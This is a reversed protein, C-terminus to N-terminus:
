IEGNKRRKKAFVVGVAVAAILVGAAAPIGVSLGIILGFNIAKKEPAPTYPNSIAFWGLRDTVVSLTGDANVTYDMATVSYSRDSNIDFRVVKGGEKLEAANLTVKVTGRLTEPEFKQSNSIYRQLETKYLMGITYYGGLTEVQENLGNNFNKGWNSSAEYPTIIFRLEGISEDVVPLTPAGSQVIEIRGQGNEEGSAGSSIIENVGITYRANNKGSTVRTLHADTGTKLNGNSDIRDKHVIEYPFIGVYDPVNVTNKLEDSWKNDYEDYTKASYVVRFDAAFSKYNVDIIESPVVPNEPIAAGKVYTIDKAAFSVSNIFIERPASVAATFNDSGVYKVQVFYSGAGKRIPAANLPNEFYGDANLVGDASYVYILDGIITVSHANQYGELVARVAANLDQVSSRFNAGYNATYKENSSLILEVAIKDITITQELIYENGGRSCKLTAVYAGANVPDASYTIVPNTLAGGTLATEDLKVSWQKGNFTVTYGNEFAEAGDTYYLKGDFRVDNFDIIKFTVSVNNNIEGDFIFNSTIGGGIGSRFRRPTATFDSTANYDINYYANASAAEAFTCINVKASLDIDAFDILADDTDYYKLAFEPYALEFRHGNLVIVGGSIFSNIIWKEATEPLAAVNTVSEDTAYKTYTAIGANIQYLQYINGNTDKYLYSNNKDKAYGGLLEIKSVSKQSIRASIQMTTILNGDKDKLVYNGAKAGELAVTLTIDYKGVNVGDFAGTIKLTVDAADAALVGSFTNAISPKIILKTTNDFTKNLGTPDITVTTAKPTIKADNFTLLGDTPVNTIVYNREDGGALEASIKIVYSSGVDASSYVAADLLSQKIRVNDGDIVGNLNYNASNIVAKLKGDYVKTITGLDEFTIQLPTIKAKCVIATGPNGGIATAQYNEAGAGKLILRNDKLIEANKLIIETGDLDVHKTAFSLVGSWTIGAQTEGEVTDLCVFETRDTLTHFKTGNYAFSYDLFQTTAGTVSNNYYAIALRAKQIEHQGVTFKDEASGVTVAGSAATICKFVYKNLLGEYKAGTLGINLTLGDVIVNQIGANKGGYLGAFAALIEKEGVIEDLIGGKYSKYIKYSLLNNPLALTNSYYKKINNNINIKLYLTAPALYVDRSYEESVNGAEDTFWLKVLRSTLGSVNEGGFLDLTFKGNVITAPNKTGSRDGISWHLTLPSGENYRAEYDTGIKYMLDVELGLLDAYPNTAIYNDLTFTYPSVNKYSDFRVYVSFSKELGSPLKATFYYTREFGDESGSATNIIFKFKDGHAELVLPFDQSMVGNKNTFSYTYTVNGSIAPIANFLIQIDQNTWQGNYTAGDTVTTKSDFWQTSAAGSEIYFTWDKIVTHETATPYAAGFADVGKLVYKYYGDEEFSISLNEGFNNINPLVPVDTLVTQGENVATSMPVWVGDLCKYPVWGEGIMKYVSYTYTTDARRDIGLILRYLFDKQTFCAKGGELLPTTVYTIDDPMFPPTNDIGDMQIIISKMAVNKNNTGNLRYVSVYPLETNDTDLGDYTVTVLLGRFVGTTTEADKYGFPKVYVSELGKPMNPANKNFTYEGSHPTDTSDAPPFYPELLELGNIQASQLGVLYDYIIYSFRKSKIGDTRLSTLQIESINYTPNIWNLDGKEANFCDTNGVIERDTQYMATQAAYDSGYVNKLEASGDWAAMVPAPATINNVKITISVSSVTFRNNGTSSEASFEVRLYKLNTDVNPLDPSSAYSAAGFTYGEVTQTVGDEDVYTFNGAAPVGNGATLFVRQSVTGVNNTNSITATVAFEINALNDVLCDPLEYYAYALLVKKGTIWGTQLQAQTGSTSSNNVSASGSNFFGFNNYHTPSYTLVEGPEFPVKFGGAPLIIKLASSHPKVEAALAVNDSNEAGNFQTLSVGTLVLAAALVFVVALGTFRLLNKGTKKARM